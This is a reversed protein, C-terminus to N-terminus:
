YGRVGRRPFNDESRVTHIYGFLNEDDIKARLRRIAVEIVNTDSDFNALLIDAATVHSVDLSLLSSTLFIIILLISISRNLKCSKFLQNVPKNKM